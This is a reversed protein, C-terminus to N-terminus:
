KFEDQKSILKMSSFFEGGDKSIVICNDTRVGVL